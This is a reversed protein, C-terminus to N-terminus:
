ADSRKQIDPEVILVTHSLFTEMIGSYHLDEQDTFLVIRFACSMLNENRDHPLLQIKNTLSIIVEKKQGVQHGKSLRNLVM